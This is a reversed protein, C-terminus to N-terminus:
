NKTKKNRLQKIVKSQEVIVPPEEITEVKNKTKRVRKPKVNIFAGTDVFQEADKLQDIPITEQNINEDIIPQIIEQQTEENFNTNFDANPFEGSNDTLSYIQKQPTGTSNIINTIGSSKASENIAKKTKSGLPRGPKKYLKTDTINVGYKTPKVKLKGSEIGEIIHSYKNSNSVNFNPQQNFNQQQEYLILDQTEERLKKEIKKEINELNSQNLADQQGPRANEYSIRSMPTQQPNRIQSLQIEHNKIKEKLTNVESSLKVNKNITKKVTKSKRSNKLKKLKKIQKLLKKLKDSKM